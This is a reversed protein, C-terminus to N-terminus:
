DVGGCPTCQLGGSVGLCCIHAGDELICPQPSCTGEEEVITMGATKTGAHASVAAATLLGMALAAAGLKLTRTM